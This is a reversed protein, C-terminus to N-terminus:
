ALAAAHPSALGNRSGTTSSIPCAVHTGLDEEVACPISVAFPKRQTFFSSPNIRHGLGIWHVQAPVYPMEFAHYVADAGSLLPHDAIAIEAAAVIQHRCHAQRPRVRNRRQEILF